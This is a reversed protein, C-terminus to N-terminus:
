AKEKYKECTQLYKEWDDTTDSWNDLHIMEAILKYTIASYKLEDWNRLLYQYLTGIHFLQPENELDDCLYKGLEKQSTSEVCPIIKRLDNIIESLDPELGTLTVGKTASCTRGFTLLAKYFDTNHVMVATHEAFHDEVSAKTLNM